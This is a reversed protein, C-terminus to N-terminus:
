RKNGSTVRELDDDGMELCCCALAGFRWGVLAM